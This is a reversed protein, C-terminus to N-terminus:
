RYFDANEKLVYMDDSGSKLNLSASDGSMDAYKTDCSFQGASIPTMEPFRSAFEKHTIVSSFIMPINFGEKTKFIIYKMNAM